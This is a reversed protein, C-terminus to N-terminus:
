LEFDALWAAAQKETMSQPHIQLVSAKGDKVLQITTKPADVSAGDFLVPEDSGRHAGQQQERSPPSSSRNRRLCLEVIM